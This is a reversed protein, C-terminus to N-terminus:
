IDTRWPSILTEEVGFSPLFVAFYNNNMLYLSVLYCIVPESVFTFFRGFEVDFDGVPMMITLVYDHIWISTFLSSM